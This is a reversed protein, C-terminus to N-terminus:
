RAYTHGCYRLSGRHRRARDDRAGADGLSALGEGGDDGIRCPTSGFTRQRHAEARCPTGHGAPICLANRVRTRKIRFPGLGEQWLLLIAIDRMMAARNSVNGSACHTAWVRAASDTAVLSTSM